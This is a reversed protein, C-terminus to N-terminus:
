ISDLDEHKETLVKGTVICIPNKNSAVLQKLEERDYWVNTSSLVPDKIEHGSIQSIMYYPVHEEFTLKFGPDVSDDVLSVYDVFDDKANDIASKRSLREYETPNNKYVDLIGIEVAYEPNQLLFIEKIEQLIYIVHKTPLYNKKLHIFVSEDMM